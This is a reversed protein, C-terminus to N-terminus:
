DPIKVTLHAIDGPNMWMTKGTKRSVFKQYIRGDDGVKTGYAARVDVGARESNGSWFPECENVSVCLMGGPVTACHVTGDFEDGFMDDWEGGDHRDFAIFVGALTPVAFQTDQDFLEEATCVQTHESLDQTVYMGRVHIVRHNPTVAFKVVPSSEGYLGLKDCDGYVIIRGKYPEHVVRSPHRFSLKGDENCLLEDDVTVDKIRKFGQSTMVRTEFEDTDVFCEPGAVPDIFGFQSTHVAQAEPTISEGSPIGGPGMKTIRRANEKLQMPNIEELPSTLPNGKTVADIYGDFANPLLGSLNRRKACQYMIGRAVKGSDMKIRERFLAAPRMVKQYRLSDREDGQVLGRNMALLKESAALLGSTGVPIYEEGDDDLEFEPVTEKVPERGTGPSVLSSSVPSLSTDRGKLMGILQEKDIAM